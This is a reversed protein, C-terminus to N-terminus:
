SITVKQIVLIQVLISILSFNENNLDISINNGDIEIQNEYYGASSDIDILRFVPMNFLAM